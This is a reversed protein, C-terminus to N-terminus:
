SAISSWSWAWGRLCELHLKVQGMLQLPKCHEMFLTSKFKNILVHISTRFKSVCPDNKLKISWRIVSEFHFCCDYVCLIIFLLLTWSKLTREQSDMSNEVVTQESTGRPKRVRKLEISKPLLFTVVVLSLGGVILLDFVFHHNLPWGKGTYLLVDKIVRASCPCLKIWVCLMTGNNESWAFLPAGVVPGLSRGIACLAQGYGNVTGRTEILSSNSILVMVSTFAM